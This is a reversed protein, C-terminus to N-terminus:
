NGLHVNSNKLELRITQLEGVSDVPAKGNYHKAILQRWEASNPESINQWKCVTNVWDRWLRLEATPNLRLYELNNENENEYENEPEM